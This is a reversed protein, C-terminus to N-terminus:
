SLPHQDLYRAILLESRTDLDVFRVRTGAKRVPGVATIEVVEAKVELERDLTPLTFRLQVVAGAPLSLPKEFFVGGISIDGRHREFPGNGEAVEVEIPLRHSDRRDGMRRDSGSPASLNPDTKRRESM